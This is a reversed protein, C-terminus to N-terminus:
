VVFPEFALLPCVVFAEIGEGPFLGWKVFMFDRLMHIALICVAGTRNSGTCFILDKNMSAHFLLVKVVSSFPIRCVCQNPISKTIATLFPHDEMVTYHM